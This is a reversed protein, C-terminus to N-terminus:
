LLPPALSGPLKGIGPLGQLVGLGLQVRGPLLDGIPLGLKGRALLLQAGLLRRQVAAPLLILATHGLQFLLLRLQVRRLHLVKGLIGLLHGEYLLSFLFNRRPLLQQCRGNGLHLRQRIM